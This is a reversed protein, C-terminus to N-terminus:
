GGSKGGGGGGAGGFGGGTSGGGEASPCERAFHGDEGCKYCGGLAFCLWSDISLTLVAAIM